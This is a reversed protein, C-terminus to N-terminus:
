PLDLQLLDVGIDKLYQTRQDSTVHWAMLRLGKKHLLAMFSANLKEPESESDYSIGTFNNELAILMGRELNDYALYYTQAKDSHKQVWNLVSATQTEFLLYEELDYKRALNIILEVEYRLTGEIDLGNIGCATWAKLDISVYKKIQHQQMYAFTNELKTYQISNGKCSDIQEIDRDWTSFFCKEEGECSVVTTNHSMWVTNSKSLQVDTEIGHITSLNLAHAAAELTNERFVSNGGARHALIKTTWPLLEKDPYYQIKECSTFGIISSCFVVIKLLKM